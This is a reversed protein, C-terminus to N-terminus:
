RQRHHQEGIPDAKDAIRGPRTPQMPKLDRGDGHHRLCHEAHRTRERGIPRTGRERNRGGDHREGHGGGPALDARDQEAARHANDEDLALRLAIV